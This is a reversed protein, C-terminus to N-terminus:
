TTEMNYDVHVTCVQTCCKEVVVTNRITEFCNLITYPKIIRPCGKVALVGDRAKPPLYSM